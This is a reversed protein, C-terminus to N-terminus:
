HGLLALETIVVIIYFTQFGPHQCVIWILRILIYDYRKSQPEQGANFVLYQNMCHGVLQTFKQWITKKGTFSIKLLRKKRRTTLV